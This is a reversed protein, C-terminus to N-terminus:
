ADERRMAAQTSRTDLSSLLVRADHHIRNAAEQLLDRLDAYGVVKFYSTPVSVLCHNDRLANNLFEAMTVDENDIIEKKSKSM